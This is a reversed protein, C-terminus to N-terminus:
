YERYQTFTNKLFSRKLLFIYIEFKKEGQLIFIKQFSLNQIINFTNPQKLILPSPLLIGEEYSLVDETRAGQYEAVQAIHRM